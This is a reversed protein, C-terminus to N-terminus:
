LSNWYPLDRLGKVPNANEKDPAGIFIRMLFNNNEDSMQWWNM